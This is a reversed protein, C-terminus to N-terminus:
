RVVSNSDNSTLLSLWAMAQFNNNFLRPEVQFYHTHWMFCFRTSAGPCTNLSHTITEMVTRTCPACSIADAFTAKLVSASM